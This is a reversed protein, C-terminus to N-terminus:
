LLAAASSAQARVILKKRLFRPYDDPNIAAEPARRFAAVATIDTPQECLLQSAGVALNRQSQRRRQIAVQHNLIVAMRGIQLVAFRDDGGGHPLRDRDVDRGRRREVIRLPRLPVESAKVFVYKRAAEDTPRVTRIAIPQPNKRSCRVALDCGDPRRVM